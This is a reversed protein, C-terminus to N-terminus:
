DGLPERSLGNWMLGYLARARPLSGAVLGYAAGWALGYGWHMVDNTVGAVGDPLEVQFLGEVLRRGVQGPASVQDWKVDTSLEWRLPGDHGGGRRYRWYWLGDMAVVGAAGALIGRALAGLPTLGTGAPAMM